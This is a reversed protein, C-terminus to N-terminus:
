VLYQPLDNSHEITISDTKRDIYVISENEDPHTDMRTRDKFGDQRDKTRQKAWQAVSLIRLDMTPLWM